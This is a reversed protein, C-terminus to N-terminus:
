RHAAAPATRAEFARVEEFSRKVAPLPMLCLPEIRMLSDWCLLVVAESLLGSPRKRPQEGSRSGARASSASAQSARM